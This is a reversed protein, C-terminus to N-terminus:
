HLRHTERERNHLVDLLSLNFWILKELVDLLVLPVLVSKNNNQKQRKIIVEM